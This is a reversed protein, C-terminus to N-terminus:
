KKAKASTHFGMQTINSNIMDKLYDAPYIMECKQYWDAYYGSVPVYESVDDTTEFVTLTQQQGQGEGDAKVTGVWTLMLMVSLLIKEKM